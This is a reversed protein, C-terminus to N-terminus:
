LYNIKIKNKLEIWKNVVFITVSFINKNKKIKKYISFIIILLIPNNCSYEGINM